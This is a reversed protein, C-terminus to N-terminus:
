SWGSSFTQSKSPADISWGSSKAAASDAVGVNVALLAVTSIAAALIRRLKM